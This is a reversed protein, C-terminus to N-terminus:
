TLDFSVSASTVKFYLDNREGTFPITKSRLGVVVPYTACDLSGIRFITGKLSSSASTSIGLLLIPKTLTPIDDSMLISENGAVSKPTRAPFTM